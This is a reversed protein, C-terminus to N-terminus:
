QQKQKKISLFLAGFLAQLVFAAITFAFCWSLCSGYLLALMDFPMQQRIFTNQTLLAGIFMIGSFAALGFVLTRVASHHLMGTLAEGSEVRLLLLLPFFLAFAWLARSGLGAGGIIGAFGLLGCLCFKNKM